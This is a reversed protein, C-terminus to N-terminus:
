PTASLQSLTIGERRKLTAEVKPVYLQTEAPLYPAIEDYTAAKHKKLLSQVTGEGANYAALTLRWDKFKDHLRGLHSAAARASPEPDLRQDLPWTRLGYDKATAPMLQFLGAAGAPSRAEPDFSSEVEALWVLQNPVKKESFIPKLRGVYPKAADPVPREAMKRIWVERIVDPPPNYRLGPSLEPPANSAGKPPAIRLRLEEATDFYDMRTKLWAAYPATEEYSDLVPLAAKATDRLQALDIVYDGQFDKQISDFLQRTKAQDSGQIAALVDDDINEQAWQQASQMLDDITVTNTQAFGTIASALLLLACLTKM